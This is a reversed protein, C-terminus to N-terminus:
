KGSYNGRLIWDFSWLGKGHSSLKKFIINQIVTGVWNSVLSPFHDSETAVSIFGFLNWLGKFIKLRKIETLSISFALAYRFLFLMKIKPAKKIQGFVAKKEKKRKRKQYPYKQSIIQWVPSIGRCVWLCPGFLTSFFFFFEFDHLGFGLRLGIASSGPPHSGLDQRLM